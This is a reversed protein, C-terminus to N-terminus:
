DVVEACLAYGGAEVVAQEGLIGPGDAGANGDVCANAKVFLVQRALTLSATRRALGNLEAPGILNRRANASGPIDEFISLHLHEAAVAGEVVDHLQVHGDARKAALVPLLAEVGHIRRVQGFDERSEVAGTAVANPRGSRARGVPGATRRRRPQGENLVLVETGEGSGTRSAAGSLLSNSRAQLWVPLM